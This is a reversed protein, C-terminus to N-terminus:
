VIKPLEKKGILVDLDFLLIENEVCYEILDEDFSSLSFLALRYNNENLLDVKEKLNNLTSFGMPKSTFKCEGFLKIKNRNVRITSVVDIDTIEYENNDCDFKPVGGIWNGIEECNYNNELFDMCFLEFERGLHTSIISNFYGDIKKEDSYKRVISYFWSTVRDSIVYRKERHNNFNNVVKIIGMSKLKDLCDSLKNDSLKTINKIEKYRGKGTSIADLVDEFLNSNMEALIDYPVYGIININDKLTYMVVDDYSVDGVIQHYASVGGLTLYTKILEMNSMKKHILQIEDIKLPKLKISYAFRGYLPKKKMMVEDLMFSISSGCIIFMSDTSTISDVLFQVESAIGDDTILYPIEDFIVVTKEKKCIEIISYFAEDYTKIGDTNTYESIANKIKNVNSYETQKTFQIYISRKNESFKKLLATKGIRRRGYVMCTKVNKNNYIDELFNLEEIRGVFNEM